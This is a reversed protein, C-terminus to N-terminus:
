SFTAALMGCAAYSFRGGFHTLDVKPSAIAACDVTYQRQAESVRLENGATFFTKSFDQLFAARDKKVATQMAVIAAADLAGDPNNPTKLLCPTIAAALVAKSIRGTGHNAIYRAVEGGGMSFGVLTADSVELHCLLADLDAALTDYDYGGWPQSSAGFGRRDYHIVRFGAEVLAPVQMEWSRGSLPWGHILVVPKGAGRDEFSIEIPTNKETGVVLRAM